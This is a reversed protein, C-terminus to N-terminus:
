VTMAHMAHMEAIKFCGGHETERYIPLCEPHRVRLGDSPRVTPEPTSLVTM